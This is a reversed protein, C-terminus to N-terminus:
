DEWYWGVFWGNGSTDDRECYEVADSHSVGTALVVNTINQRFLVLKCTHGNDESEAPYDPLDPLEGEYM